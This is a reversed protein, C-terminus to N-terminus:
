NTMVLLNIDLNDVFLTLMTTVGDIVVFPAGPIVMACKLLEKMSLAVM